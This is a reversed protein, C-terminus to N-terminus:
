GGALPVVEKRALFVGLAMLALGLLRRPTLPAVPASLLGFHDIAAAAVLQGLLVLFVANGLGIRPAAVTISGIYLVFLFGALYGSPPASLFRGASPPGLALTAIGAVTAAVASLTFAAAIPHALHVGLRANLAAMLPIGVGAVLMLLTFRM